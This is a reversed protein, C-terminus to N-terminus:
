RVTNFVARFTEKQTSPYLHRYRRSTEEDMHGCWEEILRQDVNKTAMCSVFSHRLAHWGRLRGWKSAALTRKFHDHMEDKTLPSMPVAPRLRVSGLREELRKPRHKWVHGTTPSRTKSRDVRRNHCFLADGGPHKSLWQRLVNQLRASIPVRRTTKSDHAKKREHITVWGTQLNVDTVRCRVIESRRAGTHAAFVFLPYIFDHRAHQKVYALLEATEKITLYVRDWLGKAESDNMGKTREMAEAFPMFPPKEDTKPYKLGLCPFRGEVLNVTAGWNWVTRFTAIEKKMTSASIFGRIGRDKSRNQIFEQLENATLMRVSFAQGFHKELNKQHVKMGRISTPELSGEPLAAFYRIFLARLTLNEPIKIEGQLRGDSLLFTVVDATQPIELRGREVLLLNEEVRATLLQAHKENKTQLSRKFRKSGIRLCISFYGTADRELWAM